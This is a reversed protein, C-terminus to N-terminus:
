VLVELDELERRILPPLAETEELRQDEVVATGEGERPCEPEALPGVLESGRPYVLEALRGM